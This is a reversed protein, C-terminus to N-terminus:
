IKDIHHIDKLDVGGGGDLEESTTTRETMRRCCMNGSIANIYDWQGYGWM